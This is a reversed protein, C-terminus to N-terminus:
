HGVVLSLAWDPIRHGRQRMVGLVLLGSIMLALVGLGGFLTARAAGELLRAAGGSLVSALEFATGFAAFAVALALVLRVAPGSVYRTALTGIQTGLSAGLLILFSAFILVNGSMTHRVTGYSATFIIQLLDTGVAIHSPVGVLYILAPGMVFGGGVGIFGSLVGAFFGIGVLTWLSVPVRSHPLYMVPPLKLMWGRLAAKSTLVERPPGMGASVLVDIHRKARRTEWGTYDAILASLLLSASLIGEEAAGQDKLWNVLRVGVEAGALTGLVMTAALKVDVNGLQRHRMTAVVSNGAISALGTGVAVSGPFGLAILTPTMLFGGGVGIFGAVIGVAFGIFLLLAPSVHLGVEAFSIM